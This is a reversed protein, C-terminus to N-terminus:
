YYEDEEEGYYDSSAESDWDSIIDEEEEEESESHTEEAGMLVGEEELRMAMEIRGWAKCERYLAQGKARVNLGLDILHELMAEGDESDVLAEIVPRPLGEDDDGALDWRGTEVFWWAVRRASASIIRPFIPGWSRIGIDEALFMVAFLDDAEAVENLVWASLHPDSWLMDSVSIRMRDLRTVSIRRGLASDDKAYQHALSQPQNKPINTPTPTSSTTTGRTRRLIWRKLTVLPADRHGERWAKRVYAGVTPLLDLDMVLRAAESSGWRALDQITRHPLFWESPRPRTSLQRDGVSVAGTSWRKSRSNHSNDDDDSTPSPLEDDLSPPQFHIGLTELHALLPGSLIRLKISAALIQLEPRPIASLIDVSPALHRPISVNAPLPYRLASTMVRCGHKALWLARLDEGKGLSWLTSCTALFNRPNTDIHLIIRLLIDTSHLLPFGDDDDNIRVLLHNSPLTSSSLSVPSSPLSSDEYSTSSSTISPCSTDSGLSNVSSISSRRSRLGYTIISSLASVASARRSLPSKPPLEQQQQQQEPADMATTDTTPSPPPTATTVTNASTKLTAIGDNFARTLPAFFREFHERTPSKPSALGDEPAAPFEQQLFNM